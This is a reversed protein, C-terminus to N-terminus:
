LIYLRVERDHGCKHGPKQVERKISMSQGPCRLLCDLHNGEQGKRDVNTFNQSHALEMRSIGKKKLGQPM